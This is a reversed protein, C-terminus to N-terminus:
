RVGGNHPHQRLRARNQEQRVSKPVGFWLGAEVPACVRLASQGVRRMYGLRQPHGKLLAIAANTDLLYGM